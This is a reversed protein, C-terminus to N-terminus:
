PLPGVWRRYAAVWDVAEQRQAEALSLSGACVLDHLTNELRDKVRAGYSGAYPEPWLNAAANPAGGIELSVLHDYEYDGTTGGAGYAAMAARKEPYTVSESPRVGATYGSVCITSGITAQTVSPDYAGPTCAPDPLAVQGGLSVYGCPSRQAGFSTAAVPGGSQTTTTTTTPPLTTTTSAVTTPATSTSRATTSSSSAPSSGRGSSCGVLLLAVAVLCASRLSSM